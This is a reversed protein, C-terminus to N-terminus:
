RGAELIETEVALPYCCRQARWRARLDAALRQLRREATGAPEAGARYAIRVVTPADRIQGPLAEFREHWQPLLEEAAGDFAAASVEIRLVRHIAAGFNLKVMKGRTVRVDRPNETTIRYGSPLTNPDLKMVFNSGHIPNPVAACPVHFRGHADTTVLLGRATALRVGAIGPEGPDEYGNVNADDFVKGLIDACDFTPDPVVRVTATATNSAQLGAIANLALATNTYEGEGVGAGVVLVLKATRRQGPAFDLNAWALERGAVQPERPIGDISASGTRFQFGPPIRDRLDIGTLAAALTNTVTITYPVLEGRAVNVLPTTKTVVLAGGLIPDIPVHNNVLNASLAPNFDIGLFYQTSGSGGPVIGACAGPDHAPASAAPAAASSQVLAPNPLAAIVPRASCPPILTSPVPQYAPPVTVEFRYSGAPAGPLLLFQYFGDAGTVQTANAAGGVLHLAPDFGPPGALTVTAGAVPQRTITDYVVGNPDVPLSQEVYNTGVALTLGRLTGDAADAGAPNAPGAVGAAFASGQENPVPNGYVAGSGPERFRVQYGPGPGLGGFRYGGGADTTTSAIPVGGLLLEVIWGQLLPEGPDLARDHDLDRWVHGAVSAGQAIPTPDTATNNGDFGPPEGGGSITAGNTLVQGALGAAVAVQLTIPVGDTDPAIPQSGTCTLVTQGGGGVASACSWGAPAPTAVLSLGLPLTDIITITGTTPVNGVNRPVLTYFGTTGGEAFQAPAHSKAITLDPAADPVEAFVNNVSTTNAGTLDITAIASPATGVATAVGGLSGAVTQGNRTGAPQAPQTVTYTGAVLGAFSWSGDAATLTTLSVPNANIDTGTLTIAQGGLGHDAGDPVGNDDLDLFVRGSISRGVPVEAFDNGNSAVNAGTLDVNAIASPTAGQATAVGGTSGATTRGDATAPPQAPQTLTYTGELLNAFSYSGDAATVTSLAVPTGNIDTGTLDITQGGIGTDAGNLLGDDANDLFVRGSITRAVPVEAFDNGASITNAGTLDIASIASPVVGPATAVGGASGPITQGNDTGAAQAPQTLTYTGEPLGTFGYSGDAATVTTLAVPNGSIDTGTLNITQGGLGQDPGNASGSADFDIFVTGAISRGNPIEAFDNGLADTGPPLVIGAIVSPLAGPATATGASGGNGVPGAVTLGNSTAPPQAPERVSYTGPALGSFEYAGAADTQTTALLTGGGNLLEVTVNALPTDAGNQVGNNNADLFVRGGIRAPAIEAFDNGASSAVAGGGSRQLLINSVASPVAGPATATGASGGGGGAVPGATTIGNTTGAPQVPETVTYSGANLGAFVYNGLADTVASRNLATDDGGGPAGDAGFDTGTLTVTVGAIPADVGSQFLGDPTPNNDRFVRGSIFGLQSITLTATAPQLNAGVDTALAGAGIVNDYSGEAAGTVNVATTCGGAPIQAGAAHRVLASGAVATVAGPCTSSLASPTAVVIGPPLNDDFNAVLTMAAANANGLAITLTSVGAAPVSAPAFQKAVTPPHSVVLPATAPEANSVGEATALAGAAIANAYTAATNSLVDVSFTCNGSAPITAGTLSVATASAPALVTVAAGGCTTSANPVPAVALGAPLNDALSANTLAIANANALTVTLTSPQGIAVPSPSFSKAIQVPDRVQLTAVAAPPPNSVPGGGASATVAGAAIVNDYAGPAAALVDIEADCSSTGGPPAPPLAGGTLTFQNPAPAGVTAGACTSAPNAGPPVVLGAPLLDNVALGTIQLALPNLFRLRLRARQGPAVAAPTFSKQVGLQGLAGLSTVAPGANTVGQTTAIAGAPITNQITGVSTSTVDVSLTCTDGALGSPALAAGSLTVAVDNPVAGVSAGPCTTSANPVAAIRMGTLAAGALGTTTFHDTLGADTLAVPGTNLLTVTLTAAQGPATITNPALSKNVVVSGAAKALTATVPATNRVGGAATVGGAAITNVSPAGSSSDVDFLLDCQGGAPIVAGAFGVSAAGPVATIVPAGGCTTVANAPNSVTMDAAPLPDTLAVDNLTGTGTNGLRIRVRSRGGAQITAPTFSKVATLAPTFAVPASVPNPYTLPQNPVGAVTGTAQLANGPITNVYNGAAGTVNVRLVCTGAAGTGGGARAPVVGNQIRVSAAGPVATIAAAGCTTSAAAPSAVVAQAGGAAPLNDTLDVIALPAASNNSFTITLQSPSGESLSAPSFAKTLPALDIVDTDADNSAAPNTVAGAGNNDRITGAPIRNSLTAGPAAGAPAFAAFTVTCTGAGPGTGAPMDFTFVPTAPASLDATFGGCGAGALAPAPVAAATMGAPLTDPVRVASLAAATYNRVTLTYTVPSGPAVTAPTVAKSVTLQDTVDVTATDGRSVFGGTNGIAGAPVDNTFTQPTGAVPLTATYPVTITCLGAAPVVGGTLTVGTNGATATAVGGACTTTPVGSVTLGAPVGIPDDTFSTLTIDNGPGAARENRIQLTLTAQQGAAAPNPNFTKVVRLPSTVTLNANANAAPTLGRTNGVDAAQLTNTLTQRGTPGPDTGIVNVRVTCTGSRGVAGGTLTLTNDGPSPAFTGNAAGTGTCNVSAGPVPAVVVGAPLADTVTTLPLNAGANPNGITITLQSVDDNQTINNPSFAKSITPNQLSLVTFTQVAPQANAVAAGDNGAVAGAAITNTRVGAVTSTVQVVIDCSGLVGGGPAIPITGGALSIVNSGATATLAGGCTNSVAQVVTIGAASMDDILNVAGVAAAGNDNSLTIRFATPDGPAITGSFGSEISKSVTIAAQAPSVALALLALVRALM